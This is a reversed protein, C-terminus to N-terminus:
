KLNRSHESLIKSISMSAITHTCAGYPQTYTFMRSQVTSFLFNYTPWVRMDNHFTYVSCLSENSLVFCFRDSSWIDDCLDVKGSVYWGHVFVAGTNLDSLWFENAITKVIIGWIGVRWKDADSNARSPRMCAGVSKKGPSLITVNM